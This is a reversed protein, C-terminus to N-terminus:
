APQKQQQTAAKKEKKEEKAIVGNRVLVYKPEYKKMIQQNPYISASGKLMHMGTYTRLPYIIINEASEALAGALAQKIEKKPPIPGEFSVIFNVKTREFLPEQIKQEIKINM